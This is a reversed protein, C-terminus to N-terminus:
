GGWSQGILHISELGLAQRVMSVEAVFRDMHWLSRDDPQDSRGCGLQDYFVMTREAALAELSEL